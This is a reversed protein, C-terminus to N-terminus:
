APHGSKDSNADALERAVSLLVARDPPSMTFFYRTLEVLGADTEGSLPQDSNDASERAGSSRPEDRFLAHIPVGLLRAVRVLLQPAFRSEGNEHRMYAGLELDLWRVLDHASIGQERRFREINHGIIQDISKGCSSHPPGSNSM